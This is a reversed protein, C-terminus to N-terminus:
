SKKVVYGLFYRFRTRTYFLKLLVTFVVQWSWTHRRAEEPLTSTSIGTEHAASFSECHTQPSASKTLSQIHVSCSPAKKLNMCGEMLARWRVEGVFAWARLTRLM